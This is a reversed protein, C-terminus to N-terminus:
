WKSNHGVCAARHKSYNEPQRVVNSVAFFADFCGDVKRAIIEDGGSRPNPCSFFVGKVVFAALQRTDPTESGSQSRTEGVFFVRM